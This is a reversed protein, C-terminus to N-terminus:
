QLKINNFITNAENSMFVAFSGPCSLKLIQVKSFLITYIICNYNEVINNRCHNSVQGDPDRIYKNFEQGDYILSEENPKIIGCKVAVARATNVNDGSVMCVRIGAKSCKDIAAPM